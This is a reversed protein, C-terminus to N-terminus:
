DSYKVTCGYPRTIPREVAEGAIVALAANAFYPEARSVDEVKATPISDIGGAYQLVGAEDIVYMHPTVRADYARGVTGSEDLLVATPAAARSETLENAQEPSVHGQTGPASSIISLWVVGDETMESQLSQMNGSDYHKRVFPCDHNTWELVVRKGAFDELRHENGYSDVATFAPAPAGIEPTASSAYSVLLAAGTLMAITVKKAVRKM